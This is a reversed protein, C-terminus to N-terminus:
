ECLGERGGDSGGEFREPAKTASKRNVSNVLISKLGRQLKREAKPSPEAETWRAEVTERASSPSSSLTPIRSEFSRNENSSRSRRLQISASVTISNGSDHRTKPPFPLSGYQPPAPPSSTNTTKAYILAAIDKHGAELAVYLACM